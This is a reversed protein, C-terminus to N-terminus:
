TVSQSVSQIFSHIIYNSIAPAVTAINSLVIPASCLPRDTHLVAYM